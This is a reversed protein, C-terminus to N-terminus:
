DTAGEKQSRCIGYYEEFLRHSLDAAKEVSERRAWHYLIMLRIVTWFRGKFNQDWKRASVEWEMGLYEIKGTENLRLSVEVDEMLPQRPFGGIKELASRRIIMSQDGFVAGGFVVRSENLMEVGLLGLSRSGFRQGLAFAPAQPAQNVMRLVESVWGEVPMTDAHLIVILDGTTDDIGRAIQLGRGRESQVLRVGSEFAENSGDLESSGDVVIVEFLGESAGNLESLFQPLQEGERYVPVVVSVSKVPPFAEHVSRSRFHRLELALLLFFPIWITVAIERPYGWGWDSEAYVWALFYVSFTGCLVLLSKSPRLVLFWVVWTLYWFHVIPSFVLLLLFLRFAAEILNRNSQKFATWLVFSVGLAFLSTGMLRSLGDSVGLIRLFEHFGGNFAGEGGFAVLGYIMGDLHEWFILSPLILVLLLPWAGRMLGAVYPGINKLPQRLLVGTAERHQGILLLPVLLLAMIKMQVALGLWFWAGKWKERNALVLAMLMPAVMLSDFHGEVAFSSLVIPNFAYFGLWRIPKLHERSLIVLLALIWLDGVLAVM